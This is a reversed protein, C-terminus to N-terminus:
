TGGFVSSVWGDALGQVEVAKLGASNNAASRYANQANTLSNALGVNPVLPGGIIKDNWSTANPNIIVGTSKGAVDSLVCTVDVWQAGGGSEFRLTVQGRQTEFDLVHWRVINPQAINVTLQIM